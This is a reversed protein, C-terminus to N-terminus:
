PCRLESGFGGGFCIPILSAQLFRSDMQSADTGYVAWLGVNLYGTTIERMATTFHAGGFFAMYLQVNLYIFKQSHQQAQEHDNVTSWQVRM